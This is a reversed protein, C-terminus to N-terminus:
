DALAEIVVECQNAIEHRDVLSPYVDSVRTYIPQVGRLSDSILKGLKLVIALTLDKEKSFSGIAGADSGGHGADLVIKTIKKGNTQAMVSFPCFLLVIILHKLRM